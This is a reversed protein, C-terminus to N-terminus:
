WGRAEMAAERRADERDQYEQEADWYGSSAPTHSPPIDGPYARYGAEYALADSESQFARRRGVRARYVTCNALISGIAAPNLLTLAGVHLQLAGCGPGHDPDNALSARRQADLYEHMHGM